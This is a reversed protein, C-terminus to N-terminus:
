IESVIKLELVLSGRLMGDAYDHIESQEPAQIFCNTLVVYYGTNTRDKPYWKIYGEVQPDPPNTFYEYIRRFLDTYTSLGKDSSWIERIVVDQTVPDWILNINSTQTPNVSIRPRTIPERDFNMTHTPNEAYTIPAFLATPYVLQREVDSYPETYAEAPYLNVAVSAAIAAGAHISFVGRSEGVTAIASAEIGPWTGVRLRIVEFDSGGAVSAPAVYNFKVQGFTNSIAVPTYISGQSVGTEVVNGGTNIGTYMRAYIPVDPANELLNGYVEATILATGSARVPGQPMAIGVNIGDPVRLDYYRLFHPTTPDLCYLRNDLPNGVLGLEQSAIDTWLVGEKAAVDWKSMMSNMRLWLYGSGAWTIHEITTPLAWSEQISTPAQAAVRILSPNTKHAGFIDFSSGGRYYTVFPGTIKNNSDGSVVVTALPHGDAIQTERLQYGQGAGYGYWASYRQSYIDVSAGVLNEWVQGINVVQAFGDRSEVQIRNAEGELSIRWREHSGSGGSTVSLLYKNSGADYMFAHPVIVEASTVGGHLETPSNQGLYYLTM